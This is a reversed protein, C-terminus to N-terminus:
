VVFDEEMNILMEVFEDYADDGHDVNRWLLELMKKRMEARYGLDGVLELKIDGLDDNDKLESNSIYVNRPTRPTVKINVINRVSTKYSTNDGRKIAEELAIFQQLHTLYLNEKTLSSLMQYIIKSRQSRFYYRDPISDSESSGDDDVNQIEINGRSSPQKNMPVNLTVPSMNKNKNEFYRSSCPQPDMPVNLTLMSMNQNEINRSSCPQEDMPMNLKSMNINENIPHTLNDDRFITFIGHGNAHSNLTNGRSNSTGCQLPAKKRFDTNISEVNDPYVTKERVTMHSMNEIENCNSPSEKGCIQFLNKFVGCWGDEIVRRKNDKTNMLFAYPLLIFYLVIAGILTEYNMFKAIFSRVILSVFNGSAELFTLVATIQANVKMRGM